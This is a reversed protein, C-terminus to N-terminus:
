YLGDNSLNPMVRKYKVNAAAGLFGSDVAYQGQSSHGTLAQGIVGQETYSANASSGGPSLASWSLDYAGGSVQAIATATLAVAACGAAAALWWRRRFAAIM